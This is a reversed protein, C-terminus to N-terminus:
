LPQTTVANKPWTEDNRRFGSDLKRRCVNKQIGATAPIVGNKCNHCLRWFPFFQYEGATYGVCQGFVPDGRWDFGGVGQNGLFGFGAESGYHVEDEVVGDGGGGGV